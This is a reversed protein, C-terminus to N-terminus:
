SCMRRWSNARSARSTRACGRRAMPSNGTRRDDGRHRAPQRGRGHGRGAHRQRARQGALSRRRRAAALPRRRRRRAPSRDADKFPRLRRAPRLPARGRRFRSLHLRARPADEARHRFAQSFGRRGSAAAQRGHRRHRSQRETRPFLVPSLQAHTDTMHLLARMASNASTTFSTARPPARRLRLARRRVAGGGHFAEASRPPANDPSGNLGRKFILPHRGRALAKGAGQGARDLRQGLSGSAARARGGRRVQRRRGGDKGSQADRGHDDVREQARPGAQRRSRGQRAGGQLRRGLRRVGGDRIRRGCSCCCAQILVHIRM